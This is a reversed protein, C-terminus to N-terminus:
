VLQDMHMLKDREADNFSSYLSQFLLDNRISQFFGVLYQNTEDDASRHNWRAEDMLGM